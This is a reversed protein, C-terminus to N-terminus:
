AAQDLENLANEIIDKTVPKLFYQYLGYHYADNIYNEDVVTSFMIIPTETLRNEWNYRLFDLGNMEPMHSDLLIFDFSEREILKVAEKGHSARVSQHGLQGLIKETMFAYANSDDVILFKM